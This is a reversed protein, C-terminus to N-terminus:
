CDRQTAALVEIISIAAHQTREDTINDFAALLRRQAASPEGSSLLGDPDVMTTFAADVETVPRGLVRALEV